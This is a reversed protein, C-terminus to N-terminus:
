KKFSFTRCDFNTSPTCKQVFHIDKMSFQAHRELDKKCKM